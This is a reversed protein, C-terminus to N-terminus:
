PKYLIKTAVTETGSYPVNIIVPLTRTKNHTPWDDFELVMLYSKGSSLNGQDLCSSHTSHQNVAAADISHEWLATGNSLYIKCSYKDFGGISKQEFIPFAIHVNGTNSVEIEYYEANAFLLPSAISLVVLLLKKM